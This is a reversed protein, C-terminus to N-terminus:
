ESAYQIYKKFPTKLLFCILLNRHYKTDWILFLLVKLAKVVKIMMVIILFFFKSGSWGCTVQIYHNIYCNNESYILRPYSM